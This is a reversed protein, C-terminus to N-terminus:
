TNLHKKKHLRSANYQGKQTLIGCHLLIEVTHCFNILICSKRSPLLSPWRTQTLLACDVYNGILTVKESFFTDGSNYDVKQTTMIIKTCYVFKLINRYQQFIESYQLNVHLQIQIMYHMQMTSQECIGTFIYSVYRANQSFM